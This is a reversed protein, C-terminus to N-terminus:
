ELACEGNLADRLDYRVPVRLAAAVNGAGANEDIVLVRCGRGTLSAALNIVTSTSGVGDCGPAVTIMRARRRGFLRRLGEAQDSRFDVMRWGRRRRWCRCRTTTSVM